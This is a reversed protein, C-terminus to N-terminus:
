HCIAKKLRGIEEDVFGNLAVTKRKIESPIYVDGLNIIICSANPEDKVIKTLPEKLQKNRSGIGIELVVLHKKHYKKLFKEFRRKGSTEPLTQLGFDLDIEMPSGCNPCYPILGTLSIKEKVARCMREALGKTPYRDDCCEQSCRMSLWSGETEYMKRKDFGCLWLHSDSNYTVIFYDKEGTIDKLDTMVPTKKYEVCYHCILRSWFMWKGEESPWEYLMGHLINKLRYKRIFDMFLMEFDATDSVLNLGEAISLGHGAGILLADAGKILKAAEQTRNM